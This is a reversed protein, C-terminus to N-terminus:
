FIQFPPVFLLVFSILIDLNAVVGGDTSAAQNDFIDGAIDNCNPIM